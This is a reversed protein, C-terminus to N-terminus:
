GRCNMEAAPRYGNSSLFLGVDAFTMDAEDCVITRCCDDLGALLGARSMEDLTANIPSENTHDSARFKTPRHNVVTRLMDRLLRTLDSKGYASVMLM